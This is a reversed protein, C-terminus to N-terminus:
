LKAKTNETYCSFARAPEDAKSVSHTKDTAIMLKTCLNMKTLVVLVAPVLVLVSRDGSVPSQAIMM